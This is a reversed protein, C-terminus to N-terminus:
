RVIPCQFTKANVKKVFKIEGMRTKNESNRIPIRMELSDGDSNGLLLKVEILDQIASSDTASLVMMLCRGNEVVDIIHDKTNDQSVM